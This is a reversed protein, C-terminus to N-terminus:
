RKPARCLRAFALLTRRADAPQADLFARLPAHRTAEDWYSLARAAEKRFTTDTLTHVRSTM